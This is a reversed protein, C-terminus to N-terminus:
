LLGGALAAAEEASICVETGPAIMGRSVLSKHFDVARPYNVGLSALRDANKLVDRVSGYFALSGKDLVALKRAFECLLMIKQEIVVITIGYSENLEKLIRFINRSSAPDLEGTPEDLVLINPKLALIAAVATRQKQGGSLGSIERSRLNEIGTERLAWELRAEAEDKPVGFNELGFLIEDEVVSCTMQSDIDQFVSGVDLAVKCPDTSFVDNGNVRVNGYYEGRYYHPVVGNIVFSLTTKGAGSAGTIGLFEGDPIEMSINKLAPSSSGSYSFSLKEIQIM